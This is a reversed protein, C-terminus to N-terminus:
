AASVRAPRAVEELVAEYEAAVQDVSHRTVRERANRGIAARLAPDAAAEAIREALHAADAMRFLLGTVGDEVVERAAPIDSAILTRACAQTELYVLAQAEGASPMVVLDASNILEPVRGHDVWDVFLIREELRKAAVLRELAPRGPGRGVILCSFALSTPLLDVARILDDVRKLAKLNSLHLIVLDSMAVGLSRLLGNSKPQPRFREADVPNRIARVGPVGLDDLAAALYAAPTIVADAQAFRDLLARGPAGPYTGRLIGVASTGAVIQVWPLEYRDALEPVHWAFSERGSIVVDVSREALADAFLAGIQTGELERYEPTSPVDPSTEFSPVLFRRVGLGAHTRDFRGAAAADATTVPGIARVEHGRSALGVLLHAGAIASGGHHPPLTGVYLIKL